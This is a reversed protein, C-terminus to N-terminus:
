RFRSATSAAELNKRISDFFTQAILEYGAATPHLGDFGILATSADGGFAAYLDVLPVNDTVALARIQDNAPPISTPAYGRCAGAREPVLTGLFVQAGRSRAQGIMTHLGSVLDPIAANRRNNLDNVGELLLVVEPTESALVTPLRTVGYSLCGSATSACEGGLGRNSVAPNQSTYRGALMQQLKTPYAANVDVAEPRARLNDLYAALPGAISTGPCSPNLQGETISDGFALFKTASLRPATTVTVSFSCSAVQNKADRASCGVTTSGVNFISGSPPTCAISLPQAGGTVVPLPYDVVIAKGDPSQKTQAAPCVIAPGVPTPGTSDCGPAALAAAALAARTVNRARIV